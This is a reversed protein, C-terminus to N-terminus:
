APLTFAYYALSLGDGLFFRERREHLELRARQFIGFLRETYDAIKQDRGVVMMLRLVETAHIPNGQTDLITVRSALKGIDADVRNQFHAESELPTACKLECLTARTNHIDPDNAFNQSIFLFDAKSRPNLLYVDAEQQMDFDPPNREYLCILIEGQLWKEWGGSQCIV